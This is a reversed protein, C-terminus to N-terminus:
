FFYAVEFRLFNDNRLYFFPENEKFNFFGRSTLTTKWNSGIRRSADIILVSSQDDVDIAGGLIIETGALDNLGLRLGLFIDNDYLTPLNKARKDIAYEGIIGLDMNSGSFGYFSYEFGAVAACFNDQQGTRYFTELKFLWDGAILQVDLGTQNILEYYPILSLEENENTDLLLTPERSTGNFHSVGIDWNGISQSYRIAFDVHHNKATSEYLAKETDILVPFRLRGGTGPFTRERFYPLVFLDFVGWSRPISLRVMPQGLKEEFDISEVLDTQNIIDILHVFETVGWFVKDIGLTLEWKDKVWLFNLERIDFHTRRSDAWDLRVFPTFTYNSGNKFEYYFETQAALSINNRKQGAFSANNLFVWGEASVYGTVKQFPFSVDNSYLWGEGSKDETLEQALLIYSKSFGLLIFLLIAISKRM